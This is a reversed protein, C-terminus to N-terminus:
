DGDAGGAADGSEVASPVWNEVAVATATADGARLHAAELAREIALDTESGPAIGRDQTM